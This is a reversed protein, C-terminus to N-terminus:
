GGNLAEVGSRDRSLDALSTEDFFRIVSLSVSKWHHHAACPDLDSCEGRGLLCATTTPFADFHEIVASLTTERAPRSLQFGGGPGRTSVLVGGRALAHLIKSLYNRPVDLSEAIDDVRVPGRADSEALCLAARLAYTATQSLIM